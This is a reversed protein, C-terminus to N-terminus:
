VFNCHNSVFRVAGLEDGRIKDGDVVTALIALILGRLDDTKDQTRMLLRITALNFQLKVQRVFKEGCSQWAHAENLLDKNLSEGMFMFFFNIEM